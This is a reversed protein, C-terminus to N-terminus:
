KKEGTWRDRGAWYPCHPCTGGEPYDKVEEHPCGIITGTSVIMKVGNDKLFQAIETQISADKRVDEGTTLWRHLSDVDAEEHPIIGVAVKTARKNDPGYYAITALPYKPPKGPKHQKPTKM